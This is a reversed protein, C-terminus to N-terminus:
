PEALWAEADARSGFTRFRDNSSVRQVQMKMLASTTLNASKRLGNAICWAITGQTDVAMEQSMLAAESFDVILDFYAGAGRAKIAAARLNQDFTIFEEPETMGVFFIDVRSARENVFISYM